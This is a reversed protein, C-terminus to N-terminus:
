GGMLKRNRHARTIFEKSGAILSGAPACLGKSLCVLVSDCYKALEKIDINLFEAANWLRAGDLHVPINYKNASEYCEQKYKLDGVKGYITPNELCLLATKPFHPDNV